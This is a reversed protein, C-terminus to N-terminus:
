FCALTLHTLAYLPLCSAIESVEVIPRAAAKRTHAMDESSDDSREDDSMEGRALNSRATCSPNLLLDSEDTQWSGEEGRLNIEWDLVDGGWRSLWCVCAEGIKNCSPGYFLQPNDDDFCLDEEFSSRMTSGTRDSQLLDAPLQPAPSSKRIPSKPSAFSGKNPSHNVDVLPSENSSPAPISSSAPQSSSATPAVPKPKSLREWGVLPGELEDVPTSLEGDDLNLISPSVIGLGSAFRLYTAATYPTISGLILTLALSTVSPIGLYTSTAILSLLFRPTAWQTNSANSGKETGSRAGFTSGFMDSAANLGAAFSADYPDINRSGHTGKAKKGKHKADKGDNRESGEGFAASSRNGARRKGGLKSGDSSSRKGITYNVLSNVNIFGEGLPAEAKPNAWGPLKLAPACGYLTALCFEFAPRSMNPDPFHVDFRNGQQAGQNLLEMGDPLDEAESFGGCFMTNFFGAQVLVIRHLKYLRGFAAITVDSCLGGHHLLAKSMHTMFSLSALQSRHRANLMPDPHQTMPASTSLSANASSPSANASAASHSAGAGAASAQNAGAPQGANQDNANSGAVNFGVSPLNLSPASTTHGTAGATNAASSHHGAAAAALAPHVSSPTGISVIQPAHHSSSAFNSTSASVGGAITATSSAPESASALLTTSPGASGSFGPHSIRSAHGSM